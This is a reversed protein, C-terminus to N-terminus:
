NKSITIYCTTYIKLFAGFYLIHLQKTYNTRKEYFQLGQPANDKVKETVVGFINQREDLQVWSDITVEKEREDLLKLKLNRTDGDRKDYFATRPVSENFLQCFKPFVRYADTKPIPPEEICDYTVSLGKIVFYSSMASIFSPQIESTTQQKVVKLFIANIQLRNDETLGMKAQERTEFAFSCNSWSINYSNDNFKVFNLIKVKNQTSDGYYESILAIFTRIIDLDAINETIYKYQFNLTMACDSTYPENQVSAQFSVLSSKQRSNTARIQYSYM